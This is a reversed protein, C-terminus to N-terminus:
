FGPTSVTARGTTNVVQTPHAARRFRSTSVPREGLLVGKSGLKVGLLSVAGCGRYLDLIAAPDDLGTQHSAENLSPVYVDLHPLIRDLPQMSGGSGACDLVTKCGTERIAALVEPLDGELRPMLSYYGLLTLRSRAFLDLHDLFLRRDILKRVVSATHSVGSEAPIM